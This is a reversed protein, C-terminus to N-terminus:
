SVTGPENHIRIPQQSKRAIHSAHRSLFAFRNQETFSGTLKALALHWPSYGRFKHIYITSSTKYKEQSFMTTLPYLNCINYHIDATSIIHGLTIIVIM